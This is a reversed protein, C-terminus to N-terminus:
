SFWVLFAMVLLNMWSAMASKRRCLRSTYKRSFLASASLSASCTSMLLRLRSFASVVRRFRFFVRCLPLSRVERTCLKTSQRLRFTSSRSSNMTSPLDAMPEQTWARLGSKWAMMGTLPLVSLQRFASYSLIKLFSIMVSRSLTMPQPTSTLLLALLSRAVKSKLRRRNLLTMMQVSASTSPKWIRVRIRVM